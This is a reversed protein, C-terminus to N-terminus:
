MHNWERWQKARTQETTSREQQQKQTAQGISGTAQEPVTEKADSNQHRAHQQEKNNHTTAEPTLVSVCM